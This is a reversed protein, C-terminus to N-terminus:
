CYLHMRHKEIKKQLDEKKAGVVKDVEQGKKILLFASMAQVGFEQAVDQKKKGNMKYVLVYKNINNLKVALFFITSFPFHFWVMLEDVDIKIFEVDTYKAAFEKIAPEM